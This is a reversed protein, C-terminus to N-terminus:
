DQNLRDRVIQGLARPTYPKPIFNFGQRLAVDKGAIEPSYGSTFIVKLKPKTQHFARVLDMGSKGGPMVLDTLVLDVEGLRQGWQELAEQGSVAELVKYGLQTLAMRNIARLSTDDEVVLITEHGGCVVIEPERGKPDAPKPLKPLYILFTAGQGAESQVEIWGHHQQVIGFVTALGLGTGKGLEKTTFFPEFIRTQIEPAIGCGTDAISLCAFAGTQGGPAPAATFEVESTKIVLRGGGPMADRSNVALNLLVQDLMGADAHLWLPAPTYHCQIEIDEGVIRRLMKTMGMVVENLDLNRLQLTQRRSFLLLQRTLSTAREAANKIETVSEGQQPNVPGFMSILDTHGQIVALLNNFDHAVGGALQGISDMKQSQRMQEAMEQRETIDKAVVLIGTKGDPLSIRKEHLETLRFTGDKRRNLVQHDLVKGALLSNVNAAVKDAHDIPTLDHAKLKCLEAHTYGTQACFARNADLINGQDDELVIGDPCLDFLTRYLEGNRSVSEEARIREIAGGCHDALTQFIELDAPAYANFQYSHISAVGLTNLGHRIPVLMISASPRVCDGFPSAKPTPESTQKLILKAGHDIIEQTLPTVHHHLDHPPFEQRRGNVTDMTLLQDVKHEAASYLTLKCADWGFLHDAVDVIITAAEKATRACSLRYGLTAFLYQQRKAAKQETIDQGTAFVVPQGFYNGRRLTVLKPFVEGNKRQGWWEFRQAEGALARQTAAAAAALDNKGPESVLEPTQGAFEEKTYGYMAVASDNVTIFKGETDIVYVADQIANFFNRYSEDSTRLWKEAEKRKTIDTVFGFVCPEDAEDRSEQVLLEVPIRRGDKRVYEKEYRVPQRTRALEAMAKAEIEHWEPPTLGTRFDITKLEEATYGTLECFARNTLGVRGDPYGMALPQSSQEVLQALFWLRQRSRRLETEAEARNTAEKQWRRLQEQLGVYLLITTVGVFFWGKLMSVQQILLPDELLKLPWDSVLIWLASVVAYILATRLSIKTFIKPM